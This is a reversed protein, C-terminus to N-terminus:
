LTSVGATDIAAGFTVKTVHSVYLGGRCKVIGNGDLIQGTDTQYADGLALMFNRKGMTMMSSSKRESFVEPRPM